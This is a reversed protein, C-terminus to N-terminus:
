QDHKAERMARILDKNEDSLMPVYDSDLTLYYPTASGWPHECEDAGMSINKLLKHIHALEHHTQYWGEGRIMEGEIEVIIGETEPDNSDISTIFAEGEALPDKAKAPYITLKWDRKSM